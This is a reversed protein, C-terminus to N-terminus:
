HMQRGPALHVSVQDSFAGSKDWKTGNQGVKSGFRGDRGRWGSRCPEPTGLNPGLHALHSCFQILDIEALWFIGFVSM